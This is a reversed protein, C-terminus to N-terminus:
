TQDDIRAVANLNYFRAIKMWDNPNNKLANLKIFADTGYKDLHHQKSYQWVYVDDLIYNVLREILFGAQPIEPGRSYGSPKMFGPHTLMPDIFNFFRDWWSKKGLIYLCFAIQKQFQHVDVLDKATEILSPHSAWCNYSVASLAPFPNIMVAEHHKLHERAEDEWEHLWTKGLFKWSIVGFDGDSRLKKFIDYERMPTPFARVDLPITNPLLYEKHADQHYAQYIKM